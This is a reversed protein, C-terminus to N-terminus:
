CIPLSRARSDDRSAWQTSFLRRGMSSGMAYQAEYKSGRFERLEDSLQDLQRKDFSATQRRELLDRDHFHDLRRPIEPDIPIGNPGTGSCGFLSSFIREAKASM